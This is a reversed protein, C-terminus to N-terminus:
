FGIRFGYEWRLMGSNRVAGGEIHVDAGLQRLRAIVLADVASVIHNALVVGVYRAASRFAADSEAILDVFVQQELGGSWAWAYGSPIAREVYYALAREYGPTGPETTAGHLGVALAWLDGNFTGREVEPQVGPLNPELDFAGSTRYHAMAEYYEFVTDRREGTSIRRAVQWAVDRYREALSRATRRQDYWSLAAWIEVAGYAIWRDSGLLYQGAGPVVASALFALGGNVSVEPPEISLRVPARAAAATGGRLAESQRAAAPAATALLLLAIPLGTCRTAHPM